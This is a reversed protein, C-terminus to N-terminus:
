GVLLPTPFATLANRFPRKRPIESTIKGPFTRTPISIHTAFHQITHKNSQGSTTNPPPRTNQSISPPPNNTSPIEYTNCLTKNPRTQTAQDDNQQNDYKSFKNAKSKTDNPIQM